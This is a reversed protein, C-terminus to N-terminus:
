SNEKVFSEIIEGNNKMIRIQDREIDIVGESGLIKIYETKPPFSRSLLLSGSLGCEYGFLVNATNEPISNNHFEAIIKDPLGFYWIIMDVMHYGMDILCGGGSQEKNGRWGASPEDITLTYKVDIFIPMGIKNVIQFFKSYIPNFRRQITTMIKIDDLGSLKQFFYAEDLNRAFPKEKLVHVHNKHAEEIVNKYVDHPTAIIVFDLKESAFLEQYSLYGKVSLLNSFHTVKNNDIDCIAVLKAYQSDIIGSIYHKETRHGLGILAVKLLMTKRKTLSSSSICSM